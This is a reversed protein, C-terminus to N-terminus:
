FAGPQIAPHAARFAPLANCETEIAILRDLGDLPVNLRRANFLQPILCCDAMTLRDGFCFRGEPAILRQFGLLGGERVWHEYWGQIAEPGQGMRHELYQLVRLNNLPHIDCAIACAAARVRAAEWPDQPILRPGPQTADLYEIIALSEALSRGDDLELTPVLKLPNRAAYEASRHAGGDGYMDLPNQRLAIGKIQVALRVRYAASSRFFDHLIM